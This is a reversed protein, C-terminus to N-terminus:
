RGDGAPATRVPAPGIDWATLWRENVPKLRFREQLQREMDALHAAGYFIAIQKKGGRLQKALVDMARENRVTIITSGDPGDFLTTVALSDDFQEAMLRKLQRARDRSLLATLLQVESAGAPEKSQLAVGQGLARFFMQVLSEGRDAMSRAFEDPSLDAHVFNRRAYDIWDLQHELELMSKFGLQMASIPNGARGDPHPVKRDEPAVLEYLVADYRRFIENLRQYYAKDGVHVAGVLDVTPGDSSSPTYRVISTQLALPQNDDDRLLRIFKKAAKAEAAHVAPISVAQLAALGVLLYRCRKM